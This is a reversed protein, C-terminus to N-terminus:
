RGIRWVSGSGIQLWILNSPSKPPLNYARQVHFTNGMGVVFGDAYKNTRRAHIVIFNPLSRKIEKWTEPDEDPDYPMSFIHCGLDSAIARISEAVARNDPPTTIKIQCRSKANPQHSSNRTLGAFAGVTNTYAFSGIFSKEYPSKTSLKEVKESLSMNDARM